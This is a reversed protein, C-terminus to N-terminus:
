KSMVAKAANTAATKGKTGKVAQILVKIGTMASEFDAAFERAGEESPFWARGYAHTKDTKIVAKTPVKGDGDHISWPASLNGTEDYGNSGCLFVKAGYKNYQVGWGYTGDLDTRVETEAHYGEIRGDAFHIFGEPTGEDHWKHSLYGKEASPALEGPQHPPDASEDASDYWRDGCCSCDLGSDCGDWYLGISEAKDRAEDHSRAEIVVEVSIGVNKDVRFSGGSNNQRYTYFM